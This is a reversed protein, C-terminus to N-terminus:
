FNNKNAKIKWPLNFTKKQKKGQLTYSKILETANSLMIGGFIQMSTTWCVCVYKMMPKKGYKSKEPLFKRVVWGLFLFSVNFITHGLSM